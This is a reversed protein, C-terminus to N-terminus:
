EIYLDGTKLYVAAADETAGRKAQVEAMKLWVRTDKPDEEVVKAFEALAKELQGRELLKQAAALHKEKKGVM